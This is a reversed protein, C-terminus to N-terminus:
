VALRRSRQELWRNHSAATPRSSNWLAWAVEVQGLRKIVRHFRQGVGKGPGIGGELRGGGEQDDGIVEGIERQGVGQGGVM